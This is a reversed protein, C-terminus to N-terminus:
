QLIEYLYEKIDQYKGFNGTIKIDIGFMLSGKVILTFNIVGDYMGNENMAEYSMALIIKEGTSKDFDLEWTYNLGSGHPLEDILEQIHEEHKDIWEENNVKICNLRADIAKAMERYVDKLERTEM